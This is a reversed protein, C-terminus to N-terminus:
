NKRFNLDLAKCVFTQLEERLSTPACLTVQPGVYLLKKLIETRDFRYFHFKLEYYDKSLQRTEEFLHSEFTLFCRELAGRENKVRIVILEPDLLEDMARGIEDDTIKAVDLLEIKQFNNLHAKIMRNEGPNYLIVWWRYDRSDYELRWPLVTSELTTGTTRDTYRNSILRKERIAKLLTRFVTVDPSKTSGDSRYQQIEALVNSSQADSLKNLTTDNLFLLAEPLHVIYQLYEQEVNSIPLSPMRLSPALTYTKGCCEILGASMLPRLIQDAYNLGYQSVLNNVMAETLHGLSNLQVLLDLSFQFARSQFKNFLKM